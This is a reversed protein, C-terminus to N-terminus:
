MKWELIPANAVSVVTRKILGEAELTELIKQVTKPNVPKGVQKQVSEIIDSTKMNPTEKNLESVSTLVIKEKKSAFNNFIRQNYSKKRQTILYQTTITVILFAVSGILIAQLVPIGLSILAQTKLPEWAEAIIKSATILNPELQSIGTSNQTFAVLSIRVYREEVSLGMKFTAKEYWYLTVQIYNERSDFVLYHAILLPNDLLQVDRQELIDVLPYQGQATQYTILCVEWNHLNSISSAVGIDTYIVNESTNGPFYGYVLSADQHAIEEYATDRYLFSLTYNPIKPLVTTANQWNDSSLFEMQGQATTFTPASVSIVAISSFLLLLLLKAFTIKSPLLAHKNLYRGCSQCFGTQLTICRPCAPLAPPKTLIRIKFLKESVLLTLIMGIFILILGAVSHLLSAAEQGLLYGVSFIAILRVLNLIAFFFFGLAFVLVKKAATTTLMFALFAAFIIFATLSYIGSCAVDVSFNVAQGAAATLFITPAGYSTSLTIPVGLAKLLTYAIQTNFNALAGGATYFFTAPLPVLFFLFLIPFLLMRLVKPNSLFLTVGMVFIPLTAIHYELPYFTYSGYWYVLLAVICPVIGLLENVYKGSTPKKHAEIALSAKVLDKKLYFLFAAFFPLLLVYNLAENQLAENALIWLDNGYIVGVVLSFLVFFLIQRHHAKIASGINAISNRQKTV